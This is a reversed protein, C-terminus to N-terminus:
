GIWGESTMDASIEEFSSFPVFNHKRKLLMSQLHGKAYTRDALLAAKLDPRSDGAFFLKGYSKRIDEVVRAKDIGHSESYYPSSPDPLMHIGRNKYVGPNAIVTVGHIGKQKLLREIYYSTGASLIVFDGGSALVKRIFSISTDDFPIALIDEFIEEENCDLRKFLNSLFELVSMSGDNLDPLHDKGWSNQHRDMVVQYFDRHTMTGDFDSVFVFPKM